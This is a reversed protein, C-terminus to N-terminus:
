QVSFDSDTLGNSASLSNIEIEWIPSDGLRLRVRTPVNLGAKGVYNELEIVQQYRERINTADAVTTAIKAIQLTQSDVYYDAQTLDELQGTPDQEKTIIRRLRILHFQKPGEQVSGRFSFSYDSRNLANALEMYPVLPNIAALMTHAPLEMMRGNAAKRRGGNRDLSVTRTGSPMTADMRFQDFGRAKILVSGTQKGLPSPYSITGTATFGSVAAGSYGSANLLQNLVSKAQASSDNTQSQAGVALFLSVVLGVVEKRLIM